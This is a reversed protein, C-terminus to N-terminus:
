LVEFKYRVNRAKIFKELIIMGCKVENVETLLRM